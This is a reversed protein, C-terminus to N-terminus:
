SRQAESAGDLSPVELLSTTARPKPCCRIRRQYVTWSLSEEQVVAHICLPLCAAPLCPATLRETSYCRIEAPLNPSVDLRLSREGTGIDEGGM